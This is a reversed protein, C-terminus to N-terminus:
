LPFLVSLSLIKKMLLNIQIKPITTAIASCHLSIKVFCPNELSMERLLAFGLDMGNLTTHLEANDTNYLIDEKIPGCYFRLNIQPPAPSKPEM